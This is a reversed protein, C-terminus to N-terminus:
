LGFTALELRAEAVLFDDSVVSLRSQPPLNPAEILAALYGRLEIDLPARPPVPHVIVCEILSRMVQAAPPLRNNSAPALAASLNEVAELYREVANPHLRVVNTEITRDDLARKIETKRAELVLIRDRVTAATALGDCPADILQKLNREISGLERQNSTKNSQQTM